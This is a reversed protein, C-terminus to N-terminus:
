ACGEQPLTRRSGSIARLVRQAGRPAGGAGAIRLTYRAGPRLGRLPACVVQPGFRGSVTQLQTSIARGRRAAHRRLAGERDQLWRRRPRLRLRSRARHLPRRADRAATAAGHGRRGDPWRLLRGLLVGGGARRGAVLLGGRPTRRPLSSGTPPRIWAPPAPRGAAAAVATAATWPVPRASDRPWRAAARSARPSRRATPRRRSRGRRRHRHRRQPRRESSRSSAAAAGTRPTWRAAPRSAPSCRRTTAPPTPRAAPRWCAGTPVSCSRRWRRARAARPRPAVSSCSCGDRARSARM